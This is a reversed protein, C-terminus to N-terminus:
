VKFVHGVEAPSVMDAAEGEEAGDQSLVEPGVAIYVDQNLELIAAGRPPFQEIEFILEGTNEAPADIEVCWSKEASGKTLAHEIFCLDDICGSSRARSLSM